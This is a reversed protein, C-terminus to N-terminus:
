DPFSGLSVPPERQHPGSVTRVCFEETMTQGALHRRRYGRTDTDVMSLSMGVLPGGSGSRGGRPPLTQIVARVPRGHTTFRILRGWYSATYGLPGAPPYPLSDLPAVATGALGSRACNPPRGSNVHGSSEVPGNRSNTATCHVGSWMRKPM